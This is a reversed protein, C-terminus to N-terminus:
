EKEEQTTDSVEWAHKSLGMAHAEKPFDEIWGNHFNCLLVVNQMDTISGGRSRKLIEHGHVPGYCAALKWSSTDVGEVVAVGLFTSFKCEWEDQPGFAEELLRKRSANDFLREQSVPNVRSRKM